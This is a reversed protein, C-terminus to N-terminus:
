PIIAPGLLRNQTKDSSHRTLGRRVEDRHWLANRGKVVVARQPALLRHIDLKSERKISNFRKGWHMRFPFVLPRELGNQITVHLRKGFCALATDHLEDHRRM